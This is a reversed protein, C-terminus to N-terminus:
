ENAMAETVVAVVDHVWADGLSRGVRAEIIPQMAYFSAGIFRQECEEATMEWGAESVLEAVVRNCLAESDILVGDCDFIILKLPHRRARLFAAAVDSMRDRHKQGCRRRRPSRSQFSRSRCVTEISSSASKPARGAAKRTMASVATPSCNRRGTVSIWRTCRR